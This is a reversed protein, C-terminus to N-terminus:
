RRSLPVRFIKFGKIEPFAEAAGPSVPKLVASQVDGSILRDLPNANGISLNIETAGAAALASRIDEEVGSQAGDIAINLGKLASVSKVDPRSILLAVLAGPDRVSTANADGASAANTKVVGGDGVATPMEANTIKDAVALAAMVQEQATREESPKRTEVDLPANETRPRSLPPPDPTATLVAQLDGTKAESPADASTPVVPKSIRKRSAERAPHGASANAPSRAAGQMAKLTRRSWDMYSQCALNCPLGDIYVTGPSDLPNASSAGVLGLTVCAAITWVRV